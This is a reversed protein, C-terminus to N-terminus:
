PHQAKVKLEVVVVVSLTSHPWSETCECVQELGGDSGDQTEVV